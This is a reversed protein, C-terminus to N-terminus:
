KTSPHFMPLDQEDIEILTKITNDDAHLIAVYFLDPHPAKLDVIPDLHGDVNSIHEQKLKQQYHFEYITSISGKLPRLEKEFKLTYHEVPPNSRVSLIPTVSTLRGVFAVEATSLKDVAEQYGILIVM